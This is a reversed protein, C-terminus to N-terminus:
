LYKLRFLTEKAADYFDLHVETVYEGHGDYGDAPKWYRHNRSTFGLERRMVNRILVAAKGHELEIKVLIDTWESSSLKITSM